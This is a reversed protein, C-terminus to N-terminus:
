PLDAFREAFFGGPWESAFDGDPTVPLEVVQSGETGPRVFLVSIQDPRLALKPDTLTGETTERVRRLLRLIM